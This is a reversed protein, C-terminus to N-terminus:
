QSGPGDGESHRSETVTTRGDSKQEMRPAEQGSAKRGAPSETMGLGLMQQAMLRETVTIPERIELWEGMPGPIYKTSLAAIMAPDGSAMAQQIEQQALQPNLPPLPIPPPSGYNPIELAEALSWPDYMGSRALQLKMMKDETSNVALLSNPKVVFVIMKSFAMGREDRSKRADLDPHYGPDGTVLAPILQDPDLDFDELAEGAKGLIAVRRANSEFQFRTTKMQEAIEGMALEVQRGEQRLEPTLAEWYRQLTDAAPLQRLAMLEQMNPTGSLESIQQKLGMTWEIMQAIVQPPVGDLLKFGEKVGEYNLKVKNTSGPRRSDFLRMFSESVANRNYVPIRDMWQQFALQISQANDNVADQLPMIDNLLGLGYWLWPLSWLKIRTVPYTGHWYQNPGDYVIADPTSVIYRKFPYLYGGPQVVYAWSAGPRGMPIPKNTLNRTRDTIYTRYLLAEGSRVKSAAPPQNLAGLVDGAPSLFANSYRRIRGMLSSLLSDTTPQFKMAQTPFLGRLANVSHAERLVLGEWDHISQSHTPPRIALTDRADRASLRIDGYFNCNPDWENTIDGTGAALAYKIANGLEVDAKSTVWWAIMLKNQLDAQLQFAPNTSRYGGVARLDTLASVHAQIVSRCENIQIKPLYSPGGRGAASEGLRQMGAVYEMGKEMRDFYPDSRNIRDGETVAERVWGVIRPDSGAELSEATMRPFGLGELGSTSFDAM